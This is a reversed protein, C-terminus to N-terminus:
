LSKSNTLLSKKSDRLLLRLAKRLLVMNRPSSWVSKSSLLYKGISLQHKLLLGVLHNESYNQQLLAELVVLQILIRMM